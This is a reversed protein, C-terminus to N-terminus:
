SDSNVCFRLSGDSKRVMVVNSGWESKSPEINKHQLMQATQADIHGVYADPQRRLQQRFPRCGITDIRHRVPSTRGLDSEGISFVDSYRLLLTGLRAKLAEPVSPDVRDMLIQLHDPPSCSMESPTNLQVTQVPKLNGLMLYTELRIQHDAVNVLRVSVDTSRDPLLTRAVQIGSIPSIAENVWNRNSPVSPTRCVTKALVNCQRCAPADIHSQVIIKKCWNGTKHNFLAHTNGFITIIGRGHDWIFGHTQMHGEGILVNDVHDTVLGRLEIDTTGIRVHRKVSGLIDFLSNNAARIPTDCPEITTGAPALRLSILTVLSGRDLLCPQRTGEIEINMYINRSRSTQGACSTPLPLEQRASQSVAPATELRTHATEKGRGRFVLVTSTARIFAIAVTTVSKMAALVAHMLASLAKGEIVREIRNVLLHQKTDSLSM